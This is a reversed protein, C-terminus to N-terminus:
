SFRRKKHTTNATRGLNRRDIGDYDSVIFGDFHLKDKLVDTLLHKHGHCKDGNWSSYSAMITQVNADIAQQYGAMHTKELETASLTTEGQDIGNNTGGDGVFHKACAILGDNGLDNQIAKVFQRAYSAVIAPEESYSEYTRGWRCDRAVALSPAFVWDVGTALVENRTVTTIRKVLDPDDAAGLGINHPFITAGRVNNHGHIADVGYIVPIALHAEDEFMSAVWYADNM